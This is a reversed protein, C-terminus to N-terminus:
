WALKRGARWASIAGGGFSGTGYLRAQLRKQREAAEAQERQREFAQLREASKQTHEHSEGLVIERGALALHMTQAAHETRGVAAYIEALIHQSSLTSPDQPGLENTLAACTQEYRSVMASPKGQWRMNLLEVEGGGFLCACLRVSGVLTRTDLICNWLAKSGKAQHITLRGASTDAVSGMDAVVAFLDGPSVQVTTMAPDQGAASNCLWGPETPVRDCNESFASPCAGVILYPSTGGVRLTWALVGEHATQLSVVSSPGTRCTVVRKTHDGERGGDSLALQSGSSGLSCMIRRVPEAGDPELALIGTGPKIARPGAREIGVADELAEKAEKAAKKATSAACGMGAVSCAM